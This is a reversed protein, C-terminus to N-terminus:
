GDIAGYVDQQELRQAFRALVVAAAVIIVLVGAVFGIVGNRM